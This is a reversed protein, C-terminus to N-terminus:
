GEQRSRPGFIATGVRVHTAGEEIAVEFDATMGMSLAPLGLARGQQALARFYPRSDEPRDAPPPICMLGVLKLGAVAQVKHALADVQSAPVGHKSAEGGVNVEVMVDLVRQAAVCRKGLEAALEVSDLAHYVSAVPAVYKVKNRQLPGLFHWRVGDLDALQRSKDRLEQAYNEGFDRAGATWAHRLPESPHTKGVAVLTVEAPNRGARACAADVRARVQQYALGVDPSM